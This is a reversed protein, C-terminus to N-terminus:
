KLIVMRKTLNGYSCNLRYFYIGASLNDGDFNVSHQGAPLEENLLTTILRGQLDYVALHVLGKGPLSFVIQTQSNFPNPYVDYLSFDIPSHPEDFDVRADERVELHATALLPEGAGNHEIRLGVGYSRGNPLGISNFHLLFEYNAGAPVSHWGVEYDLFRSDPGFTFIRLSDNLSLDAIYGIVGTGQMWDFNVTLGTGVNENLEFYRNIQSQGIDPNCKVLWTRVNVNNVPRAHNSLAYLKMGDEDTPNWALGWVSLQYGPISIRFRRIERLTDNELRSEIVDKSGLTVYLTQREPNWALAYPESPNENATNYQMPYRAVLNGSTDLAVITLLNDVVDGGLLHQGDWALDRFGIPSITRQPFRRIETGERDLVYVYNDENTGFTGTGSVFIRDGIIEVGYIRGDNVERSVGSTHRLIYEPTSGDLNCRRIRFNLPGNGENLITISATCHNGGGQLQCRVERNPVLIAPHTLRITLNTQTDQRITFAVRQDSFTPKSVTLSYNGVPIRDFSFRGNADTVASHGSTSHVQVDSVARTTDEALVVRGVLSGTQHEISTTFRLAMGSQIPRCNPSYQNWYCYQLGGTNDLNRIGITNFFNDHSVGPVAWFTKYQFVIEGDGTPTHWHAPDYLIIQFEQPTHTTDFDNLIQLRSWEIIFINEDEVYHTYVGADARNGYNIFDDWCVALMADPGQVGPMQYNRFDVFMSNKAGFAAWGNSCVVMTDFDQGYFRFTFPLRIVVSTDLDERYDNINLKTSRTEFAYGEQQYNIERWAYTPKKEWTEDFSDFCYYGYEDPGYPHMMNPQGIQCEFLVTDRYADNQAQAHLILRFYAKNGPIVNHGLTIRFRTECTDTSNPAITQNYRSNAATIEIWRTLSELQANVPPMALNGNNRLVPQMNVMEGRDFNGIFNVNSVTPKPAASVINFAHNWEGQQSTIRIAARVNYDYRSNRDFILTDRVQVEAGPNLNGINTIRNQSFTLYPYDSSFEAIINNVVQNGSNRLTLTTPIREGNGFLGDPNVYTVNTLDISTGAQIDIGGVYPALNHGTVTVALRGASLSGPQFTFRAWGASDPTNVLHVGDTQMVCVIAERPVGNQTRVRVTLGTTGPGIAQPHEVQLDVVEGYHIMVSPDGLLTYVSIVRELDPWVQRDVCYDSWAQMKSYLQIWGTRHINFYRMARMQGGLISNNYKTNTLGQMCIDGIPGKPRNVPSDKFVYKQHDWSLCTMASIFPHRQGTNICGDGQRCGLLWGRSLVLSAGASVIDRVRADLQAPTYDRAYLTDINNIGMQELRTYIWRGLHIMSPVFQGGAVAIDEATFLARKFWARNNENDLFLEREYRISRKIVGALESTTEAYLRGVTIEPVIRESEGDVMVGYYHDGSFMGERFNPIYLDSLNQSNPGIIILDQVPDDTFYYNQRIMQRIAMPDSPNVAALSVRYGMQRKWDALSDLYARTALNQNYIILIHGIHSSQGGIPDRAPPNIVLSNIFRAPYSLPSDNVPRLARQSSETSFRISFELAQNIVGSIDSEADLQVPFITLPVLRYGRFSLPEGLQIPSTPTLMMSSIEQEELPIAPSESNSDVRHSQRSVEGLTARQHDPVYVWYKLAAVPRQDSTWVLDLGYDESRNMLEELPPLDFRVQIESDSSAKIQISNNIPLDAAFVLSGIILLTLTFWLLSKM